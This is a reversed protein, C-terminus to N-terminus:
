QAGTAHNHHHTHLQILSWGALPMLCHQARVGRARAAPLRRWQCRPRAKWARAARMCTRAHASRSGIAIGWQLLCAPSTKCPFTNMSPARCRLPHPTVSCSARRAGRAASACLVPALPAMLHRKTCAKYLFIRARSYGRPWVGAGRLAIERGRTSLAFLVPSLGREAVYSVSTLGSFGWFAGSLRLILAEAPATQTRGEAGGASRAARRRACLM